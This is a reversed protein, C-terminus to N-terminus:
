IVLRNLPLVVMEFVVAIERYQYRCNRSIDLMMKQHFTNAARQQWAFSGSDPGRRRADVCHMTTLGLWRECINLQYRNLIGRCDVHYYFICLTSLIPTSTPPYTSCCSIIVRIKALRGVGLVLVSPTMKSGVFADSGPLPITAHYTTIMSLTYVVVSASNYLLCLAGVVVFGLEPMLSAKVEINSCALTLGESTAETVM